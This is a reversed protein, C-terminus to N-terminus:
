RSVILPCDIGALLMRLTDSQLTKNENPVVLASARRAQVLELLRPTDLQPSHVFRAAAGRKVLWQRAQERRGEFQAVDAAPVLLVLEVGRQQALATGVALTRVAAASGDFLALVPGSTAHWAKFASLRPAALAGALVMLDAERALAEGLLQGRVVSFSWSVQLREAAAALMGELQAAQQQLARKIQASEVPRAAATAVGIERAFPLEALRLLNIDEVFLGALQAGLRQAVALATNLARETEQTANLAVLVRKISIEDITEVM